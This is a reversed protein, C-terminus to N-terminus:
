TLSINPFDIKFVPPSSKSSSNSVSFVTNSELILVANTHSIMTWHVKFGMFTLGNKNIFTDGFENIRNILHSKLFYPLIVNNASTKYKQEFESARIWVLACLDIEQKTQEDM